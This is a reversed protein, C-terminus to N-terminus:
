PVFEPSYPFLKSYTTWGGEGRIFTREGRLGAGGEGVGDGVNFVKGGNRHYIQLLIMCECSVFLFWLDKGSVYSSEKSITLVLLIGEEEPPKAVTIYRSM